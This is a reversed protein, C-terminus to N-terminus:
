LTVGHAALARAESEWHSKDAWLSPAAAAVTEDPGVLRPADELGPLELGPTHLEILECDIEARNWAWHVANPPIRLFDGPHLHYATEEVFVWLEGRQVYNLQECDHQHPESHYGASRAAVMLSSNQGFVQKTRLEGGAVKMQVVDERVEDAPAFLM